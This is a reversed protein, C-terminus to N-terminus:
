SRWRPRKAPAGFAEAIVEKQEIKHSNLSGTAPSAAPPRSIGSFPYKDFLKPGFFTYHSRWAGMNQPEEQVWYVPTGAAYPALAAQLPEIPKPYLQEVRIIAVSEIKQDRRHAELEHYIKGSCLLVREIKRGKAPMSDPIVRQFRTGPALDELKSTWARLGSKPTMVVLPKRWPRLAQRRLAHFYQGATSPYIVQLNDSACLALFRELRASSHEPGQGEMGHPLLLVLGSLRSWKEEGSAIFQDIIVQAANAFDGFQGEWLVLGEPCDLSYGYEFGMVGIESLPSNVIEVPAQKPSLHQLPCYKRGSNFDSFVAHRHTFTGREVDQGTLRVRHGELALTAFALAECAGFDLPKAGRSMQLRDELLDRQLKPHTTFDAPMKTQQELLSKLREVAVGTEIDPQKPELGGEYGAWIGGLMVPPPPKEDSKAKALDRDLHERRITALRDADEQTLGGLKLLHELYGDRVDKRKEIARYLLPQTFAPEDQENHGLRRYCYMDIIVDRQFTQRFDMALQVVQAVAEPDEGNVHFIPIHLMKGIASAYTSSRGQDACTTFGVQNNVIIHLSGGTKYGELLSLNLTEQIVGEGAFAAEGHIQICMSKSRAEPCYRDQKARTRGLAVPNVYELHSPNFCLSLHVSKGHAAKWESNYGLHYKVDGRGLNLEPDKDEFERFIDYPRKNMINALVNLRGRHAMGIVIEQVGQTAAKEITLDLLPILTEAGMLSFTKKGLYRVKLFEEFIVADTLRMLIRLQEQRSLVVHNETAEMRDQLWKRMVLDDIHMFQAGITQCYTNFMKALIERLTLPSASALMEASFRRDMDADTFGYAKPDLEPPMPKKLDDLPNIAAILHGRVRYNRILMDVRHQLAAVDSKQGNTSAGAGIHGNHGNSSPPNFVSRPTFSPGLRVDGPARDVNAMEGFYRRWDDSVAAPDRRFLAYMEEVFALSSPSIAEPNLASMKRKAKKSQPQIQRAPEEVAPETVRPAIAGM